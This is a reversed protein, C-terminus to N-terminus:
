TVVYLYIFFKERIKLLTKNVIILSSNKINIFKIIKEFLKYKM